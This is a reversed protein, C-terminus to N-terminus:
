LALHKRSSWLESPCTSSLYTPIASTPSVVIVWPSFRTAQLVRTAARWGVSPGTLGRMTSVGLFVSPKDWSTRFSFLVQDSHTWKVLSLATIHLANGLPPLWPAWPSGSLHLMHPSTRSEFGLVKDEYFFVEPAPCPPQYRVKIGTSGPLDKNPELFAQDMHSKWVLQSGSSSPLSSDEPPWWRYHLSRPFSRGSTGEWSAPKERQNGRRQRCRQPLM